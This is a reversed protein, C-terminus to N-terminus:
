INKNIISLHAWTNLKPESRRHEPLKQPPDLDSDPGVKQPIFRSIWRPKADKGRTEFEFYFYFWSSLWFGLLKASYRPPDVGSQWLLPSYINNMNKYFNIGTKFEPILNIKCTKSWENSSIIKNFTIVKTYYLLGPKATALGPFLLWIIYQIRIDTNNGQHYIIWTGIFKNPDWNM